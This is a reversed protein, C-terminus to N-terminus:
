DHGKISMTTPPELKSTFGRDHTTLPPSVTAPAINRRPDSPTRSTLKPMRQGTSRSPRPATIRKPPRLLRGRTDRCCSNVPETPVGSRSTDAINAPPSCRMSSWFKRLPCAEAMNPEASTSRRPLVRSPLSAVNSAVATNPLRLIRTGFSQDTFTWAALENPFMSVLRTEGAFGVPVSVM